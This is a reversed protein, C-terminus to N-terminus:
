GVDTDEARRRRMLVHAKAAGWRLGPEHVSEALDGFSGPALDYDDGPFLQEAQADRVVPPVGAAALVATPLAVATRIISLPNSRQEEVDQALLVRLPPLVLDAAEAAADRAAEAVPAPLEGGQWEDWRRGVVAQVWAPLAVAVADILEEAYRALDAMDAPDDRDRADPDTHRDSPDMDVM